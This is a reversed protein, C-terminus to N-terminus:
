KANAGGVDSVWNWCCDVVNEGLCGRLVDSGWGDMCFLGGTGSGTDSFVGGSNSDVCSLGTSEQSSLTPSSVGASDSEGCGFGAAMVLLSGTVTSM